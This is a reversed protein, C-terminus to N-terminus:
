RRAIVASDRRPPAVNWLVAASVINLVAFMWLRGTSLDHPSPALAVISYAMNSATHFLMNSLVNNGGRHYAWAFLFRMAVTATLFIYFPTYGQIAGPTVIFFLPVHWLAWIVGLVFTAARLPLVGDLKDSLLSWGYEEALTGGILFLFLYSLPAESLTMTFHPAGHTFKAHVLEVIVALIPLLFFSVLFVTWGMRLDFARALFRWAHRPGGEKWTVVVAGVFPGFSGVVLVPFLPLSLKNQTILWGILWLVWAMVFAVVMYLAMSHLRGSRAANHNLGMEASM